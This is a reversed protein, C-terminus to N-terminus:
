AVAFCSVVNRFTRTKLQGGFHFNYWSKGVLLSVDCVSSIVDFLLFLESRYFWCLITWNSYNLDVSYQM